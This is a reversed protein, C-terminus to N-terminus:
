PGPPLKKKVQFFNNVRLNRAEHDKTLNEKPLENSFNREGVGNKSKGSFYIFKSQDLKLM